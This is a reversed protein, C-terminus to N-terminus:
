LRISKLHEAMRISLAVITLTPNVYGGTPFVSSGAIFLNDIGHVKCNKDVVGETPSDAMRTTGMHHHGGRLRPSWESGSGAQLWEEIKVRGIDLRSMETAILEMTSQVTHKDLDTVQWNLNAQPNGLLDKKGSLTVRSAPNPVQEAISIINISGKDLIASTEKGQLRLAFVGAMTDFDVLLQSLNDLANKPLRAKLLADRYALFATWGNSKSIRPPAAIFAGGNGIELEKQKSEPTCFAVGVEVGSQSRVRKLQRMQNGDFGTITASEVEIHEMFFRGVLDNDNGIGKESVDNSALLLRPNEIGGCALVFQGAKLTGNKGNLTAIDVSVIERGSSDLNLNTVNAHTYIAVTPLKELAQQYAQGFHLPPSSFQWVRPLLNDTEFDPLETFDSIWDQALYANRGLQCYEQAKDYHESLESFTIPWGSHPIWGRETFDLENM